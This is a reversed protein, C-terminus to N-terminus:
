KGESVTKEFLTDASEDTIRGRFGISEIQTVTFSQFYPGKSDNGCLGMYEGPETIEHPFKVTYVYFNDVDRYTVLDLPFTIDQSGVNGGIIDGNDDKIQYEKIM